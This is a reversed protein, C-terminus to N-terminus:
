ELGELEEINSDMEACLKRLDKDLGEKRKQEQQFELEEM